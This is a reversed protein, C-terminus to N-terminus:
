SPRPAARSAPALKDRAWDPIPTKGGGARDVWVYRMEIEAIPAGDKTRTIV